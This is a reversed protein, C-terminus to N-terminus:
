ETEEQIETKVTTGGGVKLGHNTFSIPHLASDHKTGRIKLLQIARTMDHDEHNSFYSLNIIGSSLYHEFRFIDHELQESLLITTVDMQKLTNLYQAIQKSENERSKTLFPLATTSDIVLREIGAKNIIPELKELLGKPASQEASLDFIESELAGTKKKTGEFLESTYDMFFIKKAKVYNVLNFKYRSMQKLVNTPTDTLAVYLGKENQSAGQILFQISFTTRGSGPPGTIMYVHNKVLGGEVLEDLGPIGTKIRM